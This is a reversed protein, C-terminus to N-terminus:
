GAPPALATVPAPEAIAEGRAVGPREPVLRKLSLAPREVIYYSLAGLCVSWAGALLWWAPLPGQFHWAGLQDVVALNWLFVGYSILGLWLLPRFALAKRVWGRSQDGVVAPLVIFLGILGYLVHRRVHTWVSADEFFAGSLGIQTSVAWFAVGAALWSLSPFRDLPRLWAPLEDDRQALWVSLVALGMGLAFHDLYGPLATLLPSNVVKDADGGALIVGQWVASLLFVAAVGVADNRLGPGRALRAVLWAYIPLFAYFAVEVTLSWAQALGGLATSHRYAQGIGYYTPIGDATFVGEKALWITVITLAVWYAPAIRLFRRWAYALPRPGREERARARVFPRYLLFGSVVFFVTVGAELRAAYPKLISTSEYLGSYVSAHTGVIAFAAIARLSDFLPFRTARVNM